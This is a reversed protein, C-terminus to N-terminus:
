SPIVTESIVTTADVNEASLPTTQEVGIVTSESVKTTTEIGNEENSIIIPLITAEKTEVTTSLGEVITSSSATTSQSTQDVTTSGGVVVQGELLPAISILSVVTTKESPQITQTNNTSSDINEVNLQTTQEVAFLATSTKELTETTTKVINEEGAVIIPVITAEKTETTTHTIETAIGSESSTEASLITTEVIPESTTIGSEVIQGEGLPAIPAISQANELPSISIAGTTLESPEVTESIITTADENQAGLIGATSTTIFETVSIQTSSETPKQDSPIIIPINEIPLITSSTQAEFIEQEPVKVTTSKTVFSTIESENTVPKVTSGHAIIAAII